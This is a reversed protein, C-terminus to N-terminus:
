DVIDVDRVHLINGEIKVLKVVSIGIPNPRGPARTSFIGHTQADM